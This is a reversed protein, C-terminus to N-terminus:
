GFSLFLSSYPAPTFYVFFFFLYIFFLSSALNNQQINLSSIVVFPITPTSLACGSFTVSFNFVRFYRYYQQYRQFYGQKCVRKPLHTTNIEFSWLTVCQYICVCVCVCVCIYIYVFDNADLHTHTHTHTYYYYYYYYYM